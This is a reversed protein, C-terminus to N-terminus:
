AWAGNGDLLQIAGDVVGGFKGYDEVVYADNSSIYEEVRDRKPNDIVTRRLAGQQYYLALNEYSTVVVGRKPFFPPKVTPLGAVAKDAFWSSLAARETPLTSHNLISLGHNVWIERGILLVLDESDQHWSDLLSNVVDFVLADLTKYDGGEGVKFVDTNREGDSGLGLMRAPAHLRVKAFWGENVDELNPHEVLNTKVAATEGHWGIMLRDRAVQEVIKSAYREGFDPFSALTDLLKYSFHHDFNTKQCTYKDGSLEGMFRTSREEIETDTRSALPKNVSLGIKQGSPETVPLRTIKDFFDIREGQAVEFNTQIPDAYSFTAGLSVPKDNIESLDDLYLNFASRTRDQM